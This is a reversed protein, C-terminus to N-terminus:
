HVIPLKFPYVPTSTKLNKFFQWKVLKKARFLLIPSLLSHKRGIKSLLPHLTIICCIFDCVVQQGSIDAATKEVTREVMRLRELDARPWTSTLMMTMTLMLMAVLMVVAVCVEVDVNDGVDVDEDAHAISCSCLPFGSDSTRLRYRKQAQELYVWTRRSCQHWSKLLCQWFLMVGLVNHDNERDCYLVVMNDVTMMLIVKMLANTTALGEVKAQLSTVTASRCYYLNSQQLCSPTIMSTMKVQQEEIRTMINITSTTIINNVVGRVQPTQQAGWHLEEPRPRGVHKRAHEWGGRDRHKECQSSKSQRSLVYLHKLMILMIFFAVVFHVLDDLSSHLVLDFLWILDVPRKPDYIMSNLLDLSRSLVQTRNM